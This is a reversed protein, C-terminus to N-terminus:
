NKGALHHVTLKGNVSETLTDLVPDLNAQEVAFNNIGTTLTIALMGSSSAVYVSRTRQVLNAAGTWEIDFATGVHDGAPRPVAQLLKGSPYRGM